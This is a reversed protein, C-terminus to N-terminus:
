VEKDIAALVDEFKSSDYAAFDCVNNKKNNKINKKYIHLREMQTGRKTGNANWMEVYSSQYVAWNLVKVRTGRQEVNLSIQTGREMERLIRYVTTRCMNLEEVASSITTFFEGAELEIKQSGVYKVAPQYNAKLLIWIWVKLAKEDSFIKNDLLGRHLFVYGNQM